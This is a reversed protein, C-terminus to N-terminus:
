FPNASPCDQSWCHLTQCHNSIESKEHCTLRPSTRSVANHETIQPRAGSVSDDILNKPPNAQRDAYSIVVGIGVLVKVQWKCIQSYQHQEYSKCTSTISQARDKAQTQAQCKGRQENRLPIVTDSTIRSGNTSSDRMCSQDQVPVLLLPM